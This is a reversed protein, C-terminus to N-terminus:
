RQPSDHRQTLEDSPRPRSKNLNKRHWLWNWFNWRPQQLPVNLEVRCGQGPQSTILCHGGLEKMRQFMNALGNRETKLTAADFGRGNDQVVVILYQGVWQIKLRLETASSHKAANNLTEKIAMLLSRRLPLDFAASTMEPGVEFLCQIKTPALFEQAYKCVFTAFDRVTDRHPNVAWLIEDMTCLLGRTEECMWNLQERIEATVRLENQLVEGYLVLQTMRAGIDDHIDRAIRARESQLLLRQKRHLSLQSMLRLSVLIVLGCLTLLSVQFWGTQWFYVHIPKLSPMMIVADPSTWWPSGGLPAISTADPWDPQPESRTKWHSVGDPVIKWTPDSKVEVSGGDALDVRMGFLMGAFFSGNFCEVALVHRGPTILPTLDFVFLERWEAGRGLERGDLYLTFENDTTMMLRAKDVRANEPIEFTHWLLCTQNDMTKAAWIWSGLGNTPSVFPDGMEMRPVPPNTADSSALASLPPVLLLLLLLGAGARSQGLRSLHLM